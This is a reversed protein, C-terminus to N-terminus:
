RSVGTYMFSVFAIFAGIIVIFQLIAIVLGVINLTKAAHLKSRADAEHASNSAILTFVLAIIGLIFGIGFGFTVINVISFVISGTIGPIPNSGTAAPRSQTSAQGPHYDTRAYAPGANAAEPQPQAAGTQLQSAGPQSSPATGPATAGSSATAATEARSAADKAPNVAGCRPCFADSLELQQGCRSCYM